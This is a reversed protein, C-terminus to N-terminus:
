NFTIPINAYAPMPKGDEVYPKFLARLVAKRAADDLRPYGSSKKVEVKEARGSENILVHLMVTGKEELRESMAPYEPQPKQIYEIGAVTKPQAPASPIPAAAPVPASPPPTAVPPATLATPAPTPTVVPPPTKPMVVPKVVPVPKPPEPTPTPAAQPAPEPSILIAVIEKPIVQVPTLQLGKQLAYFAGAHLLLILMLVTMGKPKLANWDPLDPQMVLTTM